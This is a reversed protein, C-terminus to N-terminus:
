PKCTDSVNSVSCLLGSFVSSTIVDPENFSTDLEQTKISDILISDLGKEFDTVAQDLFSYDRVGQNLYLTSLNHCRLWLDLTSTHILLLSGQPDLTLFSMLM